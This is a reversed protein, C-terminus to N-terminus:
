GKAGARLARLVREPTLPLETLRIGVADFVANSIAPSVQPVAVEGIGKAGFPGDPHGSEALVIEVSLPTDRLSPMKYDVFSPNILQGNEYRMEEHFTMGIGMLIEGALQQRCLAPNIARGADAACVYRLVKIKGTARDVEVEAVAAAVDWFPTTWEGCQEAISSLRSTTAFEGEGLLGAEPAAASVIEAFSVKREPAELVCVAEGRLVLNEKPVELLRSAHELLQRRLDAAAAVIANGMHFTSRDSITGVDFPVVDTDLLALRVREVPMGLSEAALQVLVTGAGQGIEVTASRVEAVGEPSLWIRAQSRTPSASNKMTCAMGFGRALRAGDAAARRRTKWGSAAAVEDLLTDLHFHRLNEGSVFLGGDPYVNRRRLDFPDIGLCTAIEDMQSEHGWAVQPVGLGRLSGAPVKNTYICKIDILVNPIAYPGAATYGSKMSVIPGTEAYAGTDYLVECRRALLKGDKSVGTKVRYEVAHKSTIYFEERRTTVHKVPRGLLMALASALPELKLNSKGGFGGGVNHVVVRVQEPRLHFLPGLRTQVAYPAQSSTWVTLRGGAYEAVTAHPEMCCHQTSPSTYVGEVILDSAAFGAQLDGVTIVHHNCMNTGAVPNFAFFVKYQGSLNMAQHVLPAGPALADRANLVPPLEEYQVDILGLAEEAAEPEEAAVAAVPEGVHRVEDIALMPQDILVSGFIIECGLRAQLDRATVVARVGPVKAARSTDIATIRARPLPSRLVKAHLMRPRVINAAYIASGSVKGAGDRRPISRGISSGKASSGAEMAM